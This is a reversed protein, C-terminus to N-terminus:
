TLSCVTSRSHSLTLVEEARMAPSLLNVRAFTALGTVDTNGM